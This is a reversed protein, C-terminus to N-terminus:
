ANEVVMVILSGQVTQLAVIMVLGDQTASVSVFRVTASETELATMQVSQYIVSHEKGYPNACVHAILAIVMAQVNQIVTHVWLVLIVNACIESAHEMELANFNASTEMIVHIM